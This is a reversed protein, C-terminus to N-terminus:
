LSFIFICGASPEMKPQLLVFIVSILELNSVYGLLYKTLTSCCCFRQMWLGCGGLVESVWLGDSASRSVLSFKIFQYSWQTCSPFAAGLNMGNRSLSTIVKVRHEPTPWSLAIQIVVRWPNSPGPITNPHPHFKGCGNLSVRFRVWGGTDHTGIGKGGRYLWLSTANVIWEM